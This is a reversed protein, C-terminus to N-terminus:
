EVKYQIGVPRGFREFLKAKRAIDKDSGIGIYVPAHQKIARMLMFIARTKRYAPRVFIWSDALYSDDSWWSTAEILGVTAAINEGDWVLYVFGDTLCDNIRDYAKGPNIRGRGVEPHMEESLIRYIAPAHLASGKGLRV